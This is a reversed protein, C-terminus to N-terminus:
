AARKQEEEEKVWDAQGVGAKRKAFRRSKNVLNVGIGIPITVPNLPNLMTIGLGELLGGTISPEEGKDEMRTMGITIVMGITWGFALVPVADFGPILEVIITVISLTLKKTNSTFPVGLILFWVGFAVTAVFAIIESILGGVFIIGLWTIFMEALDTLLASIILAWAMWIKIRQEHKTQTQLAQEQPLYSVNNAYYEAVDEEEEQQEAEAIKRRRTMDILYNQKQKQEYETKPINEAM